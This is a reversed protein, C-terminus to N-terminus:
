PEHWEGLSQGVRKRCCAVQPTFAHQAIGVAVRQRLLHNLSYHTTDPSSRVDLVARVDQSVGETRMERHATCGSSGYLFKRTM